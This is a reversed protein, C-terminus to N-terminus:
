ENIKMKRVLFAFIWIILAFGGFAVNVPVGLIDKQVLAVLVFIVLPFAWKFFESRLFKLLKM